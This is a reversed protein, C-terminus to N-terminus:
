GGQTAALIEVRDGDRLSTAPWRSRSVVERNVSVAIGRPGRGLADVLETVTTGATVDRPSGNVTLTVRAGTPPESM